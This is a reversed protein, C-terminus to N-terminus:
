TLDKELSQWAKESTDFCFNSERHRSERNGNINLNRLWGLEAVEPLM